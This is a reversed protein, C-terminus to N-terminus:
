GEVDYDADGRQPRPRPDRGLQLVLGVFLALLSAQFLWDPFTV